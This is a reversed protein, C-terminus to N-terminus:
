ILGLLKKTEIREPEINVYLSGEVLNETNEMMREMVVPGHHKGILRYASKLRFRNKKENHNGSAVLHVLNAELLQHVLKKAKSGNKGTISDASVQILVGKKVLGYIENPSKQVSAHLEPHVVIPTYGKIQIDFILNSIDYQLQAPWLDLFLYRNASHLPLLNERSAASMLDAHLRAEQGPLILLPLNEEQLRHNLLHAQQKIKSATNVLEGDIHRPAAIITSIGHEIAAKAIAVSEEISAAGDELNPLIHNHIDIM